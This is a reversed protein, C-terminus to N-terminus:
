HLDIIYQAKALTHQPSEDSFLRLHLLTASPRFMIDCLPVGRDVAGSHPRVIATLNGNGLRYLDPYGERDLADLAGGFRDHQIINCSAYLKEHSRGVM